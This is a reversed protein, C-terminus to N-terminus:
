TVGSIAKVFAMAIMQGARDAEESHMASESASSAFWNPCMAEVRGPNEQTWAEVVNRNAEFHFQVGYSARGIRFCQNQVREGTVLRVANEPLSFTDRHWQFSRFCHDVNAFLPDNQGDQTLSLHMWGFERIGDLENRGGYARALLQSGLCIGLVAKDAAGFSQMLEMIQLLYPYKHDDLASPWGGPVVLADYGDSDAPIAEGLWARVTSLEAGARHLAEGVSGLRTNEMTEVIAVRM